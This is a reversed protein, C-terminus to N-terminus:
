DLLISLNRKRLKSQREHLSGEKNERQNTEFNLFLTADQSNGQRLIWQQCLERNM